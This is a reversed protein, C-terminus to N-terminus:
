RTWSMSFPRFRRTHRAVQTDHAAGAVEKAVNRAVNRDFVTPIIYEENLQSPTVVDAIARAAALEMETNVEKSRSDLLGRFFGPFCLANNIQNPYDSRGTAMIRVFPAAEEPFIEPDPNAMAFVMADSNMVALHDTTLIGPGSLGIFLDAGKMAELLTGRFNDPNTNEAFWIKGENGDYDRGRHLVGSRDCGIINRMGAEMMLRATAVGGAGVGVIVTKVDGIKKNVIKLANYLGALAVVATGHQDDHFVPIDLEARLRKEIYFCRPASIDELNIGGFGPAINKVTEVIEDPDKTALCVPWADVGALEKFLMAKGEMVPMAAEPGIDGLGLVATGDTVVAVTNSKITLNWVAEPDDYIAMCIRGVGPTYAMSLDNRTKLPSKSQIELKGRLHMLFTADSVNVVHIGPIAKVTAVISQGHAVDRANVSLDRVIKSRSSHVIDVATIDGGVEGIRSTISGLAGPNNPYEARITVSYAVGPSHEVAM